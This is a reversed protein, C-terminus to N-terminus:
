SNKGDEKGGVMKMGCNPCRKLSGNSKVCHREVVAGCNTCVNCFPVTSEDWQGYGVPESDITPADMRRAYRNKMCLHEQKSTNDKLLYKCKECRVVDVMDVEDHLESIADVAELLIELAMVLLENENERERDLSARIVKYLETVDILRM